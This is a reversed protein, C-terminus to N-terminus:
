ELGEPQQPGSASSPQPRAAAAELGAPQQPASGSASSPQPPAAAAGFGLPPTVEGSLEMPELEDFGRLGHCFAPLNAREAHAADTQISPPMGLAATSAAAVVSGPLSAPPRSVPLPVRPESSEPRARRTLRAVAAPPCASPLGVQADAASRKKALFSVRASSFQRINVCASRMLDNHLKIQSPRDESIAKFTLVGNVMAAIRPYQACMAVLVNLVDAKPLKRRSAGRESPPLMVSDVIQSVTLTPRGMLLVRQWLKRDSIPLSGSGPRTIVM